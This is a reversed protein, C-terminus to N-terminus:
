GSPVEGEEAEEPLVTLSVHHFQDPKLLKHAFLFFNQSKLLWGEKAVEKSLGDEVDEEVFDVKKFFNEDPEILEIFLLLVVVLLVLYLVLVYQPNEANESAVFAFYFLWSIILM